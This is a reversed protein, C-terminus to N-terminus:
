DAADNDNNSCSLDVNHEVANHRLKLGYNPYKNM